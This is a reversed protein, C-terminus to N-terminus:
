KKLINFKNFIKRWVGKSYIFSRVISKRSDKAMLAFIEDEFLSSSLEALRLAEGHQGCIKAFAWGLLFARPNSNMNSFDNLYSIEAWGPATPLASNLLKRQIKSFKQEALNTSIRCSGLINCECCWFTKNEMYSILQWLKDEGHYADIIGPEFEAAIINNMLKEDLSAFIRLDTGQSDSKYWDIYDLELEKLVQSITVAPLKVKKEVNFLPAFYYHDLRANDPELTSSCEPSATLYFDSEGNISGHVIAPYVYLRKFGKEDEFHEMLRSDPDFAICISHKAIARWKRPIGSSAGVDVLVPPREQILPHAMVQEFINM